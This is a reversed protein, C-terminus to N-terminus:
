GERYGFFVIGFVVLEDANGFGIRTIKCVYVGGMEIGCSGVAVVVVVTADLAFFSVGFFMGLGVLRSNGKM